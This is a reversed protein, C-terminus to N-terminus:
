DLYLKILLGIGLLIHIPSRTWDFLIDFYLYFKPLVELDVLLQVDKAWVDPIFSCQNKKKKKKKHM